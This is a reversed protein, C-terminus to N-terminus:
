PSPKVPLFAKNESDYAAFYNVSKQYDVDSNSFAIRYHADKALEPDADSIRLGINYDQGVFAEPIELSVDLVATEGAYWTRLDCDLPLSATGADGTLILAVSYKLHAAAFGRNAIRLRVRSLEGKLLPRHWFEATQLEFRYGMHKEIYDFANVNAYTQGRWANLVDKNYTLNLYSLHLQEFEAITNDSQSFTSVAATEGGYPAAKCQNSVWKLEDSRENAAYTDMDTESALLADNHLGLRSQEQPTLGSEVTDRIFSPRRVCVTMEESIDLLAKLLQVRVTPDPPDGHNSSHWEGWPGLFGAQLTYIVAKNDQLIPRMQEIHRLILAVEQPDGRYTEKSFGYAARVIVKLGNMRAETLTTSLEDLKKADLERDRYDALDYMILALACRNSRARALKEPSQSDVPYYFGRGPNLVPAEGRTYVIRTTEVYFAAAAMAVCILLAM